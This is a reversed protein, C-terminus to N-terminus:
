NLLHNSVVFTSKNKYFSVDNILKDILLDDQTSFLSKTYLLMIFVFILAIKKM